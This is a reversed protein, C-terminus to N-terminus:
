KFSRTDLYITTSYTRDLEFINIDEYINLQKELYEMIEEALRHRVQQEILEPPYTRVQYEDLHVKARLKQIHGTQIMVYKVEKPSAM